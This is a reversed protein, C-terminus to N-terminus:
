TIFINQFIIIKGNILKKRHEAWTSRVGSTLIQVRHKMPNYLKGRSKVDDNIFNLGKQWEEVSLWKDDVKMYMVYM